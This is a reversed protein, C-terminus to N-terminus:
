VTCIYTCVLAYLNVCSCIHDSHNRNINSSRNISHCTTIKITTTVRNNAAPGPYQLEDNVAEDISIDISDVFDQLMELEEFEESGCLSPTRLNDDEPIPRHPDIEKLQLGRGMNGDIVGPYVKQINLLFM